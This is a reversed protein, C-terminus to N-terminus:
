RMEIARDPRTNGYSPWGGVMKICQKPVPDDKDVRRDRPHCPVSILIWTVEVCSQCPNIWGSLIWRSLDM